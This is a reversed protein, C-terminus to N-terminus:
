DTPGAPWYERLGPWDDGDRPIRVLLGDLINGDLAYDEPAKTLIQCHHDIACVLTHATEQSGFEATWEPLPHEWGLDGSRRIQEQSVPLVVCWPHSLMGLILDQAEKDDDAREWATSLALVPVGFAPIGPLDDDGSADLYLALETGLHAIVDGVHVSRGYEGIASADLIIRILQEPQEPEPETV